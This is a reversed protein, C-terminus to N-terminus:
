NENYLDRSYVKELHGKLEKSVRNAVILDSKSCFDKFNKLVTIGRYKQESIIPEYIFLKIKKKKLEIIIDLIGSERYNDSDMKMTLRYIGVVKPQKSLIQDVIFKKRTYNSEVIATMIKNPINSFNDLLQRTDKPLCYGGYGFSPNNYYDGVRPDTSVGKIIESTSLNHAESFSDLENFFSIRMALYTNAFLKVAEAEKSKMKLISIKCSRNACQKLLKAFKDAEETTDGVIIRSPNLNDYLASNERLFEPSFFINKIKYKERLTDTYGIPITSKIVITGSFKQKVIDKIVKDISDTNFKGTLSDYNTPTSIIIYDQDFYADKNDSTAKLNLKKNNFYDKIGSDEIPSKRQNVLDVKEKNIDFAIVQHRVSLLTALSLGVYGLGIVTIKLGDM